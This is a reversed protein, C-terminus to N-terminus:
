ALERLRARNRATWLLLLTLPVVNAEGTETLGIAEDLPMVHTRIDEGESDLGGPGELDTHIECLGVFMHFHETTAGPSVYGGPVPVLRRLELGAEEVTERRACDEPTEGPDVLGAVPELVWPRADGRLWPGARFQEILAVRDSAPDYPLVLAADTGVFVERVVDIRGGSFAPHSLAVEDLAFFGDHRRRRQRVHVSERDPGARVAAPTSAAEAMLHSWARARQRTFRRAMEAAPFRGYGAMYDAAARMTIGGWRAVWDGLDFRDGAEWAGEQPYFVRAATMGSSTEIEVPVLGYLHGGEYFELRAIDEPLLAEALCGEAVGAEEQQLM